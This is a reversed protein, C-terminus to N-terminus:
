YNILAFKDPTIVLDILAKSILVEISNLNYKSLLAIKDHKKKRKKIISNCKKIGAAIACIKLGIPSSTTGIPIGVFSAFASIFICETIASDLILLNEIYNLNTRVKKHKKSMLENRNIKEILNNRTENINKLRFEQSVNEESM